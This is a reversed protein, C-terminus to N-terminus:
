ARRRRAGFAAVLGILAAAGPAPVPNLVASFTGAGVGIFFLSFKLDGASTSLTPLTGGPYGFSGTNMSFTTQMNWANGMFPMWSLGFLKNGSFNNTATSLDLASAFGLNSSITYLTTAISGSGVGAITFTTSTHANYKNSGSTVINATDALATITFAKNLFSVGNLTGTGIGAYSMQVLAASATSAVAASLAGALITSRVLSM